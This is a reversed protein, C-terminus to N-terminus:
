MANVEQDPQSLVESLSVAQILKFNKQTNYFAISGDKVGVILTKYDKTFAFCTVRAQTGRLTAIESNLVLDWVKVTLDEGSSILQLSGTQPYFQLQVIVGRHGRFNHTQFGKAVDYVKVQSDSTGIALFRSSPDFSM